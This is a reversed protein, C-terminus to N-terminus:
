LYAVTLIITGDYTGTTTGLPPDVTGTIGITLNGTADIATLFPINPDFTSFATPFPDWLLGDTAGFSIPISGSTGTLETPLTYDVQIAADPEGTLDFRGAQAATNAPTSPAGALVAGFDLDNVGTAALPVVGVVNATAAINATATTQAASPAALLAACGLLTLAGVVSRTWGRQAM